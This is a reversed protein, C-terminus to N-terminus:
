VDTTYKVMGRLNCLFIKRIVKTSYPSNGVVAVNVCCITNESYTIGMDQCTQKEGHKDSYGYLM